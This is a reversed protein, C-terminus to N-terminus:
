VERDDDGQHEGLELRRPSCCLLFGAVLLNVALCVSAFVVDVIIDTDGPDAALFIRDSAVVTYHMGATAALAVWALADVAPTWRSTTSTRTTLVMHLPAALVVAASCLLQGYLLFSLEAAAAETLAVCRFLWTSKTCPTRNLLLTAIDSAAFVVASILAWVWVMILLVPVAVPPPSVKEKDKSVTPLSAAAAQLNNKMVKNDAM